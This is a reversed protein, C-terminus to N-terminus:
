RSRAAPAARSGAPFEIELTEGPALAAWRGQLEGRMRRVEALEPGTVDRFAPLGQATLARNLQETFESPDMLQGSAREIDLLGVMHEAVLAEPPHRSAAGPKGFDDLTWGSRVLGYFAETFGFVSEVAFHTLDHIPFFFHVQSWTRSGDPRVCTLTPRSDRGKKFQILLSGPSTSM